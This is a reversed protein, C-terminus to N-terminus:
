SEAEMGFLDISYGEQLTVIAKKWDSRRGSTRIPRGGSRMTMQKSKGRMNMTSVNTVKVDFKKEIAQKVEIKNAFSNVQFAYKRQSEELHSMKETLLPRIIVQKDKVM